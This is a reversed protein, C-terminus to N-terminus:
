KSSRYFRQRKRWLTSPHMELAEAAEQISPYKQLAMRIMEFELEDMAKQLPGLKKVEVYKEVTPPSNQLFGGRKIIESTIVPKDSAFVLVREVVNKLERVNGPWSYDLFLQYTEPAWKQTLGFKKQYQRNFFDILPRIDDKRQRLPPVTLPIVNLRYYLDERFIGQAVLEELNKNTAAMIRADIKIPKTGGIRLIEKEQLVRLIKVQPSPPLDGIEDLLISGGEVAEFVGKKGQKLAGTFSGSEYGFLESELLSEPIATCNVRIFPESRRVSNNHITSAIIEKGVGSEGTILVTSDFAAVRSALSLLNQM